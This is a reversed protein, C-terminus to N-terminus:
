GNRISKAGLSQLESRANQHSSSCRSSLCVNVNVSPNPYMFCVFAVFVLLVCFSFCLLSWRLIVGCLGFLSCNFAEWCTPQLTTKTSKSTGHSLKTEQDLRAPKRKTRNRKTQKLIKSGIKKENAKKLPQPNIEPLRSTKENPLPRRPRTGTALSPRM